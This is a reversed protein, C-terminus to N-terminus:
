ASRRRHGSGRRAPSTRRTPCPPWGPGCCQARLQRSSPARTTAPSRSAPSSRSRATPAVCRTRSRIRTASRVTRVADSRETRPRRRDEGASYGQAAAAGRPRGHARRRDGGAIGVRHRGSDGGTPLVGVGRLVAGRADLAGNRGSTDQFAGRGDLSTPAQGILALVPVRSALSEGLGAVTNLCGGGSTAACWASGRAAAATAMPWRRQPSSTSPWCRPSTAFPFVRRRLSRRHQCRRRRLRLGVGIAALHEVIHDVVRHRSAM